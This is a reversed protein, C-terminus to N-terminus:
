KRLQIVYSPQSKKLYPHIDLGDAIMKEKDLTERGEKWFVTLSSTRFNGGDGYDLIQSKLNKLKEQREKIEEALRIYEQELPAISDDEVFIYDGKQLAPPFGNKLNDWFLEGEQKLKEQYHENAECKIYILDNHDPSYVVYYMFKHGTIMMQWQMQINYYEPIEGENSLVWNKEGPVKIEVSEDHEFCYGDLSAHFYPIQQHEICVPTFKKFISANFCERAKEEFMKGRRMYFNERVTYNAGTKENYVDKATKFPSKGMIAAIDSSGIGQNRWEHWADSDQKLDIINMNKVKNTKYYKIAMEGLVHPFVANREFREPDENFLDWLLNTTEEVKVLGLNAMVYHLCEEFKPHSLM